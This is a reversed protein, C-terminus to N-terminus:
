YDGLIEIDFDVSELRWYESESTLRFAIYRGAVIFDCKFGDAISFTQPDAWTVAGHLEDQSGIQITVENQGGFMRPRVGRVLKRKDPAGFTLGTRELTAPIYEGAFRSTSDALLLRYNIPDAMVVRQSDPTFEDSGWGTIDGDWATSDLDWDSEVSDGTPGTTAFSINPLERIACLGTKWNWCIATDCVVAGQSPFCIWVENFYPQTTLFCRQVYDRDINQFLWRRMKGDLISVPEGTGNHRIVDTATLVIHTGNVEAWCNVALAGHEKFVQDFRFIYQGGIYTMAYTSRQKYIMFRDGLAGGDVIEDDGPLDYEGADLTPDTADWDPIDGPGIQHSWKVRHPTYTYGASSVRLNLAILYNRFARISKCRTTTPWSGGMNTLTTGIDGDWVQPRDVYNTLYTNGALTTGVWRDDAGGTYDGGTNTAENNWGSTAQDSTFAKATGLLLWANSAAQGSYALFTPQHTAASGSGSSLEAHGYILEIAGDRFRVNRADTFADPPLDGIPGDQILGTKGIAPVNVIM